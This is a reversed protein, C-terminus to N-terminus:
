ANFKLTSLIQEISYRLEDFGISDPFTFMNITNCESDWGNQPNGGFHLATTLYGPPPFDIDDVLDYRQMKIGNVAIMNADEIKFTDAGGCVNPSISFSSIRTGPVLQSDSLDISSIIFNGADVESLVLSTPYSIEFGYEDNRYMQWSETLSVSSDSTDFPADTTQCDWIGNECILVTGDTCAVPPQPGCSEVIKFTSLIQDVVVQCRQKEAIDSYLSFPYIKPDLVDEFTITAYCELTGDPERESITFRPYSIDSSFIQAMDYAVLWERPHLVEFGYEENRYTQWEESSLDTVESLDEFRREITPLQQDVNRTIRDIEFFVWVSYSMMAITGASMLWVLILLYRRKLRM